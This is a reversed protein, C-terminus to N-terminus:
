RILHLLEIACLKTVKAFGSVHNDLFSIGDVLINKGSPEYLFSYFVHLCAYRVIGARGIIWAFCPSQACLLHRAVVASFTQGHGGNKKQPSLVEYGKYIQRGEPGLSPVSM